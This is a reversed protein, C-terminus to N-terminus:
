PLDNATDQERKLVALYEDPYNAKLYATRYALLAYAVSHAKNFAYGASKCITNWVQKAKQKSYGHLKAGEAFRAFMIENEQPSRWISRRVSNAESLSFGGIVHLVQMVQEQFLIIGYTEKLIPEMAPVDYEVKTKSSKREIFEELFQLPGPRYIAILASIDELCNIGFEKCLNQIGTSELQFVGITDGRNLLKYTKEDDNPIESFRLRIGHKMYIQDLTKQIVTLIRQGVFDMKLLGLKEVTFGGPFQTIAEGNQGRALPCVNLIRTDCIAVGTMHTTMYCNLGELVESYRWVEQVRPEKDLLEALEPVTRKANELTIKYDNPILKFIKVKEARSHGLARSVELVM